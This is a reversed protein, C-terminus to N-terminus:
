KALWAEIRRHIGGFAQDIFPKIQEEVKKGVLPIKVTLTGEYKAESESDGVPSLVAGAKVDVPIGKIDVTINGNRTGDAKADVWAFSQTMKLTSGLQKAFKGPVPMAMEVHVGDDDKTVSHSTAGAHEALDTAFEPDNFIKVVQDPTGSYHQPYNLDM